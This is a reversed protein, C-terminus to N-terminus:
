IQNMLKLELEITNYHTIRCESVTNLLNIKIRLDNGSNKVIKANGTERKGSTLIKCFGEATSTVSSSRVLGYVM